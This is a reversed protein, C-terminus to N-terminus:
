REVDTWTDSSISAGGSEPESLTLGRDDWSAVLEPRDVADEAEPPDEARDDAWTLSREATRADLATESRGGDGGARVGGGARTGTPEATTERSDTAGSLTTVVRRIAGRIRQLFGPREDGRDDTPRGGERPEEESEDLPTLSM